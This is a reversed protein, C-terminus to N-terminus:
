DKGINEKSPVLISLVSLGPAPMAPLGIQLLIQVVFCVLYVFFLRPSGPSTLGRIRKKSLEERWAFFDVTLVVNATFLDSNLFM